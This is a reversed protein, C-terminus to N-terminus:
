FRFVIGTSIRLDNQHNSFFRTRIYDGEVRWALIRFLRYDLGGGLGNAFSNNSASTGLFSSHMHGIGFLAEGFPRINGISFGVRPGFLVEYEHGTAQFPVAGGGGGVPVVPLVTVTQKGYAGTFDTVLGVHPFIKGELSGRWGNMNPRSAGQTFSFANSDANQFSYGLFINGSTPIQAAAFQVCFLLLVAAIKAM